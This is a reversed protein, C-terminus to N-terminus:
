RRAGPLHDDLPDTLRLAGEDRLQMVLIATMIKTISGIRYQTDTSPSLGPDDASVVSGRASSWILEGDRVLGAVLSPARAGVQEGALLAYLRRATADQVLPAEHFSAATM